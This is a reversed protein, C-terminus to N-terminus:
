KLTVQAQPLLEQGDATKLPPMSQDDLTLHSVTGTIVTVPPYDLIPQGSLKTQLQYEGSGTGIISVDIQGQPMAAYWEYGGEAKPIALLELDIIDSYLTGDPKMGARNGQADRFELTVPSHTALMKSPESGIGVLSRYDRALKANSYYKGGTIPYKGQYYGISAPEPRPLHLRLAAREDM